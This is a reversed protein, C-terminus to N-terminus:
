VFPAGHQKRRHAQLEAEVGKWWEPFPTRLSDPHAWVEQNIQVRGEMDEVWVVLRRTQFDWVVQLIKM